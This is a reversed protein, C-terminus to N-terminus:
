DAPAASDHWAALLDDGYRDQEDRFARDDDSPDLSDAPRTPAEPSSRPQDRRDPGEAPTLRGARPPANTAEGETADAGASEAPASAVPLTIVAMQRTDFRALQPPAPDAPLPFLLVPAAREELPQVELVARCAAVRARWAPPLWRHLFVVWSLRPSRASM